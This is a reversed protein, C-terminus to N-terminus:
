PSQLKLGAQAFFILLVGSCCDLWAQHHRGTLREVVGSAYAPPDLYM